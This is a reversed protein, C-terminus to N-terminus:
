QGWNEEKRQKARYLRILDDQKMYISNHIEQNKTKREWLSDFGESLLEKERELRTRLTDKEENIEELLQEIIPNLIEDNYKDPNEIVQKRTPKMLIQAM